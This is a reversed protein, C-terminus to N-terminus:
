VAPVALLPRYVALYAEIERAPPYLAEVRERGARGLRKRLAPDRALWEAGAELEGADRFLLGTVGHEILSRNGAIDSALVARQLVLAELVSNAMGGESRSCNLVVDAQALLSAMQRHPIAGIHRAWSRGNLGALLADGEAADLLPGVYVLRVDPLRSAVRELPVLPARPAKVPRIGAPFVFLVRREPLSWRAGLDCPETGDLRAAQPIVVLRSALHPLAEIVRDRISEHFVVLTSAGELVGRVVGARAPDFLDDNADTGTLTLVLPVELRRALRLAAPGVRYAHLAHILVPRYASVEQVLAADGTISLDWVRVALGREVLGRAIRDATVANGRVSPFSFPTLLAVGPPM